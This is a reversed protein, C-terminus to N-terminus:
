YWPKPRVPVTTHINPATSFPSVLNNDAESSEFVAAISVQDVSERRSTSLAQGRGPGARRPGANDFDHSGKLIAVLQAALDVNESAVAGVIERVLSQMASETKCVQQMHKRRADADPYALFLRQFSFALSHHDRLLTDWLLKGFEDTLRVNAISDRSIRRAKLDDQLERKQPLDITLELTQPNM